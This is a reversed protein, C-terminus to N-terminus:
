SFVEWKWGLNVDWMEKVTMDQIHIPPEVVAEELLTKDSAWKHHWFFTQQGNGVAMNVGKRVVDVSSMIGRWANSANSKEKFMDLDCWNDCYKARMVRSWLATPETLLRWGLKALFANNTQRMARLGLGGEKKSKTVAAWSFLHVKEEGEKSGWLFSRSKKDLEDCTARPIKTSQMAYM